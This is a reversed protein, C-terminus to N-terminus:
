ENRAIKGSNDNQQIRRLGYTLDKLSLIDSEM